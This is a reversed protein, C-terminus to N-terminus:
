QERRRMLLLLGIVTVVPVAITSFEPILETEIDTTVIETITYFIPIGPIQGQGTATANVTHVYTGIQADTPVAISLTSYKSEETGIDFGNPDFTYAWGSIPNDISLVVNETSPDDMFYSVNVEYTATGGPGVTSAIPTAEMVIGAAVTGATLLLISAALWINVTKM